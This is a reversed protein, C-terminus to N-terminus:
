LNRILNNLLLPKSDLEQNLELKFSKLMERLTTFATLNCQRPTPKPGSCVLDCLTGDLSSTSWSFFALQMQSHAPNRDVAETCIAVVANILMAMSDMVNDVDPM